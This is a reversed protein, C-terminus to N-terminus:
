SPTAVKATSRGCAKPSWMRSPDLNGCDAKMLAPRDNSIASGADAISRLETTCAVRASPRGRGAHSCKSGTAPVSSPVGGAPKWSRSVSRSTSTAVGITAHLEEREVDIGGILRIGM